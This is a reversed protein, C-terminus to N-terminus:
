TLTMVEFSKHDSGYSQQGNRFMQTVHDRNYEVQQLCM